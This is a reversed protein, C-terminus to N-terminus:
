LIGAFKEAIGGLLKQPSLTTMIGQFQARKEPDFIMKVFQPDTQCQTKIFHLGEAANQEGVLQVLAEICEQKETEFDYEIKEAEPRVVTM